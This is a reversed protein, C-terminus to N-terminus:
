YKIRLSQISIIFKMLLFLWCISALIKIWLTKLFSLLADRTKDGINDINNSILKQYYFPHWLLMIPDISEEMCYNKIKNTRLFRIGLKKLYIKFKKEFEKFSNENYVERPYLAIRSLDMLFLIKEENDKKCFDAIIRDFDDSSYTDLCYVSDHITDVLITHLAALEEFKLKEIM